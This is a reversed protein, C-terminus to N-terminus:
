RFDFREFHISKYPVGQQRLLPMLANVMPTPGCINVERANLQGVRQLLSPFDPLDQGTEVAHFEFLPDSKALTTLESLFAADAASRFLYFLTTTQACPHARLCAIFPVIGIGGAFWLQPSAATEALFNGFPGQVRVQVGPEVDQIRRTCQGLAKIALKLSGDAAIGSVTFPHYEGCGRYRKKEGFAALVFQGPSVDLATANPMLSVEVVGTAQTLAQTVRYPHAAIGLDSAIWRWSLALIVLLIFVLLLQIESLLVYIHTMGLLVGLGLAMHLTRWRRYHLHLAFTTALGFMLLILAAWGLWIPWSQTWPALTQWAMQPAEAWTDLALALPHCLLLVYALMGSRHHWLYSYELGGLMRAIHPERVMLALNAVLLASGGWASVIAVSRWWPLGQPFYWWIALLPLLLALLPARLQRLISPQSIAM